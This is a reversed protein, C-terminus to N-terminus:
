HQSLTARAQVTRSTWCRLLVSGSSDGLPSLHPCGGAKQFLEPLSDAVLPIFIGTDLSLAPPHKVALEWLQSFSM